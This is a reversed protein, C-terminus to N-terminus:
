VTRRIEQGKRVTEYMRRIWEKNLISCKWKEFLHKRQAFISFDSAAFLRRRNISM